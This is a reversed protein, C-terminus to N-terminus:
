QNDRWGDALGFALWAALAVGVTALYIVADQRYLGLLFSGWLVSAVMAGQLRLENKPELTM